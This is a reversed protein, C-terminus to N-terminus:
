RGNRRAAVEDLVVRHIREAEAQPDLFLAVTFTREVRWGARTLVAARDLRRRLSREGADEGADTLVAVLRTEPLDPHALAIPVEVAGHVDEEVILGLNRLRDVLDAVIDDRASDDAGHATHSAPTAPGADVGRLWHPPEVDDTPEDAHTVQGTAAEHEAPTGHEATAALEDDAEVDGAEVDGEALAADAADDSTPEPLPETAGGTADVPQATEGPESLDEPGVDGEAEADGQAETPDGVAPAGTADDAFGQDVSGGEGDPTPGVEGDPTPGVEGDATSGDGDVPGPGGDATAGRAPADDARADEDRRGDAGEAFPDAGSALDLLDALMHAGEHHIRGRDISGPAITSVVALRHRPLALATAMRTRGDDSSLEGFRHAFRGHANAGFGVSFVLVDRRLGAADSLDTAILPEVLRADHAAELAPDTAAAKALADRVRSAHTPSPTVVAISRGSDAHVEARVVEVVRRVESDVSEVVELGPAPTGFGDVLDLVVGEDARAAPVPAVTDAYGHAALIRAAGPVLPGRVAPLSVAPLVEALAHAAGSPDRRVDGIVVVQRARGLISILQALPLHEVGHLVALDVPDGPNLIQSALLPAAARVPRITPAVDPHEALARAITAGRDDALQQWLHAAQTRHTRVASRLRDAVAARVAPVLTERQAAELRELEDLEHALALPDRDGLASEDALVQELVSSWWALDLEPGVLDDGVRRASLDDLLDGLGDARLEEVLRTREPLTRLATTDAALAAITERLEALPLDELAPRGIGSGLVADLRDVDETTERELERIDSLGDPLKPWSGGRSHRQWIERQDQVRLLEGHLDAVSRGPRVLDRAQRVLRRRTAGSMEIEQSRRDQRPATAAVMDAASHEFIQPLFVDLADAIGDLMKLQERWERLTGAEHLGTQNGTTEVLDAVAPLELDALRQVRELADAAEANTTLRAGYWPTSGPELVFAGLAAARARRAAASMRAEGRLARLPEGSIRAATRPGPTRATLRALAQLADFVSVGWGEHRNHLSGLQARVISRQARLARRTQAVAAEDVRVAPAEMGRRVSKSAEERWGGDSRLDLVLEGLGLGHLYAVTSRGTRRDGPVYTVTRGDAAARALIAAAVGIDDAGPPTDVLFHRGRGVLDLAREGAVELDGVAREVDPDPDEEDGEPLDIGLVDRAPQDGALAAVVESHVLHPVMTRLDEVALEGPHLFTGVVVRELVDLGPLFQGARASVRHLAARQESASGSFALSEVDPEPMGAQVLARALVPNLEITRELTFEVEGDATVPQLRIGRLFVPTRITTVLPPEAPGRVEPADAPDVGPELDGDSYVPPPLASWTAIGTALYTPAVGFRQALDEARARVARAARHAQASAHAERVLNSLRTPRGAYLQAIGGPHASTLDLIAEGLDDDTGTGDAGLATLEAIWDEV